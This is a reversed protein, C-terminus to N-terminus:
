SLESLSGRNSIPSIIGGCMCVSVCAGVCLVCVCVRLV